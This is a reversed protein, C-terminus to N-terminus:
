QMLLSSISHMLLTIQEFNVKIEEKKWKDFELGLFLGLKRGEPAREAFIPLKASLLPDSTL